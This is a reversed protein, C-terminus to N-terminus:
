TFCGAKRHRATPALKGRAPTIDAKSTIFQRAGTKRLPWVVRPHPQAGLPPDQHSRALCVPAGDKSHRDPPFRPKPAARRPSRQLAVWQAACKKTSCVLPSTERSVRHISAGRPAAERLPGTDRPARSPAIVVNHPIAMESQRRHLQRPSGAHHTHTHTHTPCIRVM